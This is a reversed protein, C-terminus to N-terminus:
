RRQDLSPQCLKKFCETIREWIARPLSRCILRWSIREDYPLICCFYYPLLCISKLYLCPEKHAILTNFIDVTDRYVEIKGNLANQSLMTQDLAKDPSTFTVPLKLKKLLAVFSLIKQKKAKLATLGDKDPEIMINDIHKINIILNNQTKIFSKYLENFRKNLVSFNKTLESFDIYSFIVLFIEDPCDNVPLFKLPHFHYPIQTIVDDGLYVFMVDWVAQSFRKQNQSFPELAKKWNMSFTSKTSCCLALLFIFFAKRM